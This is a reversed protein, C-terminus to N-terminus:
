RSVQFKQYRSVWNTPAAAFAVAVHAVAAASCMFFYRCVCVHQQHEKWHVREAGCLHKTFLDTTSETWLVLGSEFKVHTLRIEVNQAFHT